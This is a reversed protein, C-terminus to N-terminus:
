LTLPGQQYIEITRKEGNDLVVLADVDIKLIKSGGPLAEGVRLQREPQEGVQIVVTRERGVQVVGLFRWSLQTVTQPSDWAAAKGWPNTKVLVERASKPDARTVKPLTWEDRTRSVTAASPIPVLYWQLLVLLGFAGALLMPRRLLTTRM